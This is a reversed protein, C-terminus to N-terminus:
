TTYRRIATFRRFCLPRRRDRLAGLHEPYIIPIYVTHGCSRSSGHCHRRVNNKYPRIAIEATSSTLGTHYTAKFESRLIPTIMIARAFHGAMYTKAPLVPEGKKNKGKEWYLPNPIRRSEADSHAPTAGSAQNHQLECTGALPLLLMTKTLAFLPPPPPPMGALRCALM